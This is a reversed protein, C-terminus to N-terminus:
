DTNSNVICSVITSGRIPTDATTSNLAITSVPLNQAIRVDTTCTNLEMDGTIRNSLSNSCVESKLNFAQGVRSQDYWYHAQRVTFQRFSPNVALYIFPNSWSSWFALSWTLEQFESSTSSHFLIAAYMPVFSALLSVTVLIVIAPNRKKIISRTRKMAFVILVSNVILLTICPLLNFTTILALNLQYRIPGAAEAETFSICNYSTEIEDPYETISAWMFGDVFGYCIWLIPVTGTLLVFVTLLIRQRTSPHLNRLPYICRILKNFSLLNVLILNAVFFSFRYSANVYCFQRGFIWRRESYMTVLNPALVFLCNGIDAVSLNKIIWISMKDLKIVNHLISAYLVFLNGSIGLILSIQGFAIQIWDVYGQSM